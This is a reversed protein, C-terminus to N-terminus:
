PMYGGNWIFASQMATMEEHYEQCEACRKAGPIAQLRAAPITDGCDGCQGTSNNQQEQKARYLALSDDVHAQQAGIGGDKVGYGSM